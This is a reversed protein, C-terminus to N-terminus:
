GLVSQIVYDAIDAAKPKRATEEEGAMMQQVLIRTQVNTLKIKFLGACDRLRPYIATDALKEKQALKAIAAAEDVGDINQKNLLKWDTAGAFAGANLAALAAEAPGDSVGLKYVHQTLGVDAAWDQLTKSRAVYIFAM